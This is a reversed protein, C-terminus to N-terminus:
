REARALCEAQAAAGLLGVQPELVIQVPINTLLDSIRGKHNFAAMFTGDTILPLNKAAIGGAIFLGGYPLTKLALNGSEAGYISGFMQMTAQALPDTKAIAQASIIGAPDAATEPQSEWRQVVNAIDTNESLDGTDRLFQYITIIGAGSLVRENSVRDIQKRRCIYQYLEFEQISRAAFDTHGGETAIVQYDTGNHILFGQGLGTGAGIIAIPARDRPQGTQLTHLDAPQLQTIGYGIATFDNILTLNPIQLAQALKAANLHWDLNPLYSSGDIVAGAIALCAADIEIQTGLQTPAAALFKQVIAVLDPYEQSPYSQQFCALQPSGPHALRLLTKTGGVDGSLLYNM